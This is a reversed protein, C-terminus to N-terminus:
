NINYSNTYFKINLRKLYYSVNMHGLGTLTPSNIARDRKYLLSRFHTGYFTITQSTISLEAEPKCWLHASSSFQESCWLPHVSSLSHLKGLQNM